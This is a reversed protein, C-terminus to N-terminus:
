RIHLCYRYRNTGGSTLCRVSVENRHLQPFNRVGKPRPDGDM